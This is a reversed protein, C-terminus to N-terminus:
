PQPQPGLDHPHLCGGEHAIRIVTPECRLSGVVDDTLEVTFAHTLTLIHDPVFGYEAALRATEEALDVDEDLYV